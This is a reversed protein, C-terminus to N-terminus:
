RKRRSTKNKTKRKIRRTKRKSKTKSFPQALNLLKSYLDEGVVENNDETKFMLGNNKELMKKSLFLGAPVLMNNLVGGGKITNTFLECNINYGGAQIDGGKTTTYVFNEM